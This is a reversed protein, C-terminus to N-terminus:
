FNVIDISVISNNGKMMGGGGFGSSPGPSNFSSKSGLAGNSKENGNSSSAPGASGFSTGVANASGFSSQTAMGSSSQNMM